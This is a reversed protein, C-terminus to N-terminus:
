KLRPLRVWYRSFLLSPQHLFSFDRKRGTSSGRIKLGMVKYSYRSSYRPDKSYSIKFEEVDSQEDDIMMLCVFHKCVHFCPTVQLSAKYMIMLELHNLSRGFRM